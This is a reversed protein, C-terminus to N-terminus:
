IHFTLFLCSSFSEWLVLRYSSYQPMSKSSTDSDDSGVSGRRQSNRSFEKIELLRKIDDHKFIKGSILYCFDIYNTPRDHNICWAQGKLMKVSSLNADHWETNNLIQHLKIIKFSQHYFILNVQYSLLLVEFTELANTHSM